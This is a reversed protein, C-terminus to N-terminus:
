NIYQVISPWDPLRTFKSSANYPWAYLIAQCRRRSHEMRDAIWQEAHEPKDEILWNGDVAYKKGTQHVCESLHVGFHKRVWKRRDSEWTDSSRLPKTVFMVEHRSALAEIAAVAGPMPELRQAWGPSNIERWVANLQPQTLQLTHDIDWTKLTTDMAIRVGHLRFVTDLYGRRFQAAVDDVDILVRQKHSSSSM